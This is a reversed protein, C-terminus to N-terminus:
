CCSGGLLFSLASDLMVLNRLNVWCIQGEDEWSNML